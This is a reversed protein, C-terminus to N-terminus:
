LPPLSSHGFPQLFLLRYLGFDRILPNTRSKAGNKMDQDGKKFWAASVRSMMTANHSVGETAPHYKGQLIHM